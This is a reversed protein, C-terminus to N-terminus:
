DSQILTEVSRLSGSTIPTALETLADDALYITGIGKAM